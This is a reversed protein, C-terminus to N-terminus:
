IMDITWSKEEAVLGCPFIGYRIKGSIRINYLGCNNPAGLKTGPTIAMTNISTQTKIVATAITLSFSIPVISTKSTDGMRGSNTIIELATGYKSRDNTFRLTM